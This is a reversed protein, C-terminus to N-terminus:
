RAASMNDAVVIGQQCCLGTTDCRGPEFLSDVQRVEEGFMGHAVDIEHLDVDVTGVEFTRTDRDCTSSSALTRAREPSSTFKTPGSSGVWCTKEVVGVAEHARM